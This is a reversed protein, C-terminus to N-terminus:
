LMEEEIKKVWEQMRKVILEDLAEYPMLLKKGDRAPRYQFTPVFAYNRLIYSRVMRDREKSTFLRGEFMPAVLFGDKGAEQLCVQNKGIYIDFWAPDPFLAHKGPQFYLVPHTNGNMELANGVMSKFFMGHFSSEVDMVAGDEGAYVWVHELDYLHQIDFDFYVAYEVVCRCGPKLKVFRSSSPSKGDEYFVTYGIGEMAFPEALDEMFCPLYVLATEADKCHEM